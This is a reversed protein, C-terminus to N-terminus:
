FKEFLLKRAFFFIMYYEPLVVKNERLCHIFYNNLCSVEAGRFSVPGTLRHKDSRKNGILGVEVTFGKGYSPTQTHNKLLLFGGRTSVVPSPMVNFSGEVIAIRYNWSSSTPNDYLELDIGIFDIEIWKLQVQRESDSVLSWYCDVRLSTSQYYYLSNLTFNPM